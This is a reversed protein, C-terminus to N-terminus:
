DWNFKRGLFEELQQNYPRYFDQLRSLLDPDIDKPYNGVNRPTYSINRDEPLGLFNFVQKMVGAPDQALDENSLILFQERSFLKMWRELLYIYLGSKLIDGQQHRPIDSIQASKRGIDLENLSIKLSTALSHKPRNSKLHHYYASIARKVPHRLIAILKINPFWNYVIKEVGPVINSTSAEGTIFKSDDARPPFHALYLRKEPKLLSWDEPVQIRDLKPVLTKLYQPEKQVAPLLLSHQSMYDYLATTGCKAVGIILFNPEKLKGHEWHRDVFEPYFEKLKLYIVKQYYPVAESIEGMAGLLYGIRFYQPPKVDITKELNKNLIKKLLERNEISALKLFESDFYKRPLNPKIQLAKLRYEWAKDLSGQEEFLLSLELLAPWFNANLELAKHYCQIARDLQAIKSFNLGLNYHLWPQSPQSALAKEFFAISRDFNGQRISVKLLIKGLEEHAIEMNESSVVDFSDQYIKIAKDIDNSKSFFRSYSNILKKIFKENNPRLQILKQLCDIELDFANQKQYIEALQALPSFFESNLQLAQQYEEIARDLKGEQKLQNGWKLHEKATTSKKKRRMM